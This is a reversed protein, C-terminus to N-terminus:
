SAIKGAFIKERWCLFAWFLNATPATFKSNMLEGNIALLLKLVTHPSPSLGM